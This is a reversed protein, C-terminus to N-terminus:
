TKKIIEKLQLQLRQVFLPFNKILFHFFSVHTYTKQANMLKAMQLVRLLKYVDVSPGEETLVKPMCPFLLCFCSENIIMKAVLFILFGFFQKM